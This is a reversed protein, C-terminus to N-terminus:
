RYGDLMTNVTNLLTVARTRDADTANRDVLLLDGVSVRLAEDHSCRNDLRWLLYVHLITAAAIAAPRQHWPKIM